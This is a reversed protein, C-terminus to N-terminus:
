AITASDVKGTSRRPAFCRGIQQKVWRLPRMCNRWVRRLYMKWLARQYLQHMQDCVMATVPRGDVSAVTASRTAAALWAVTDPSFNLLDAEERICPGDDHVYIDEEFPVGLRHELWQRQRMMEPMQAEIMSSHTRFPPGGLQMLQQVVQAMAWWTLESLGHQPGFKWYAYLLQVAPLTLGDNARRIRGADFHIGLQECFHRVVCGEPFTSPAYKFVQVQERGFISDLMEIREPYDDVVALQQISTPESKLSQQFWSENWQKWPRLYVIIRVRYGRDTMFARIREFEVRNMCWCSEASIIPCVDRPTHALREELLAFVRKKYRAIRTASWGLSRFGVFKELEDSFLIAMARSGNAEDFDVYSFGPDDLRRWLSEQISTTGTKHMGIHIVCDKM